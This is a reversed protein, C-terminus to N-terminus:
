HFLKNRRVGRQRWNLNWCRAILRIDTYVETLAYNVFEILWVLSRRLSCILLSLLGFWHDASAASWSFAWSLLVLRSRSSIRTVWVDRWFLLGGAFVLSSRLICSLIHGPSFYWVLCRHLGQSEFTGGSSYDVLLWHYRSFNHRAPCLVFVWFM